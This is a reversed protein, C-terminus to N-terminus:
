FKNIVSIIKNVELKTLYPYIPLSLVEQHINETIPLDFSNYIEFAKQKHPPIPYHIITEICHKKLYEQLENRKKSRIVFLHWVHNLEKLVNNKSTKPLQINPNKIGNLYLYAIKRRNHNEYDLKKLKVRLIGAQLEDLRSNKGLFINKYKKNSGYNAITRITNALNKDNTTIAGGDGLAGLNKSPYFSFGSADGWNGARKTHQLCGHAQASDELILLNNKKAFNILKKMPALKGYLHVVLIAKTKTNLAKELNADDINFDDNNPEVFVPKLDNQTISLISAIYTNAPVIVQDGSNIKKLKKWANLTLSLADLGNGVGVCYKTGCYKAFEIEFNKCEHGNIYNGSKITKYIVKNIQKEYKSNIKKLDLFKIM